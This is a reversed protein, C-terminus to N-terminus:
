WSSRLISLQLVLASCFITTFNHCERSLGSDIMGTEIMRSAGHGRLRESARVCAGWALLNRLVVVVVVVFRISVVAMTSLCRILVLEGDHRRPELNRLGLFAFLLFCSCAQLCMLVVVFGTLSSPGEDFFGIGSGLLVVNLPTRLREHPLHTDSIRSGFLRERM